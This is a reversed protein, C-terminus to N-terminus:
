PIENNRDQGPQHKADRKPKQLLNGDQVEQSSDLLMNNKQNMTKVGEAWTYPSPGLASENKRTKVREASM